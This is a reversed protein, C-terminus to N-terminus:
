KKKYTGAERSLRKKENFLYRKASYKPVQHFPLIPKTFTTKGRRAIRLERFTPGDDDDPGEEDSIEFPFIFEPISYNFYRIKSDGSLINRAISLGSKENGGIIEDWIRARALMLRQTATLNNPTMRSLTSPNFSIKFTSDTIKFRM